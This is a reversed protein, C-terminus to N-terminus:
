HLDVLMVETQFVAYYEMYMEDARMFWRLPVVFEGHQRRALEMVYFHKHNRSIWMPTLQCDPLTHLWKTSHRLESTGEIPEEPYFALRSRVLPNSM